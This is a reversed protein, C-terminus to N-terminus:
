YRRQRVFFQIIELSKHAWVERIHSHAYVRLIDNIDKQSTNDTIDLTVTFM